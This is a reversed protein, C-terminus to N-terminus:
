EMGYAKVQRIGQFIQSLRDSLIGLEAQTSKSIKRLKRGIHAIFGATFPLIIFAAIALKWDQHFMVATLLVFTMSNKGANTMTESLALRVVNVDNVVRSILQGSPNAHFFALDLIMFHSFLDKQMDGIMSQSVKNMIITHLFTALGKAIFTVLVAIAVPYIMAKN